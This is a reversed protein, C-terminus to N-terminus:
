WPASGLENVYDPSAAAYQQLDELAVSAARPLKLPLAHTNVTALSRSRTTRASSCPKPPSVVDQPVTAAGVVLVMGCIFVPCSDNIKYSKITARYPIPCVMINITARHLLSVMYIKM